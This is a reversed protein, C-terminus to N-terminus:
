EVRALAAAPRLRAARWGGFAGAILGGAVALIVALLIVSLTVPATLTVSVTHTANALNSLTGGIAGGGGSPAAATGVTATLKPSVKDIVAAGAYGLGVGLAGGIVGIAVSEGVVQGIVRISRWGLAKLTGFERVRRAVAAMTLLSALMFAAILVAVSLWKGLNNALSSASSLSGSVQNALNDQDTVTAHPLMKTISTQVSPITTASTASIYITNVKGSLSASGDKGISQAKALPIYVNPPSGGQPVAVIGVITFEVPNDDRSGVAIKDNVKLNKQKAYNADVVAKDAKADGSNLNRGSTVRAASLAGISAKSLDVGAVTFSDTSFNSSISTKSANIGPVTGTVTVDTLTLAGAAASVNHTAAVKSVNSDDLTGYQSNVLNNIHISTGATIQGSRFKQIEQKFGFKTARSQGAPPPQTVTVDTGVGYLSHLVAAQSNKVGQSAATVTIVLGIGVALGLAIFIAQRMRRRLERRLYTFFM